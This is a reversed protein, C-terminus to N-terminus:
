KIRNVHAWVDNDNGLFNVQRWWEAHGDFLVMNAGGQHRPDTVCGDSGGTPYCVPCVVYWNSMHLTTSAADVFEMTTSPSGIQSLKRPTIQPAFTAHDTQNTNNFGYDSINVASNTINVSEGVSPCRSFISNRYSGGYWDEYHRWDSSGGLLSDAALTQQVLPRNWNPPVYYYSCPLYDNYTSCYGLVVVGIQKLNGSCYVRKAMGKAQSLAPLLLSALIAIIAIVVLLEILTFRVDKRTRM